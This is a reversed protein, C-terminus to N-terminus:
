NDAGLKVWLYGLKELVNVTLETGSIRATGGGSLVKCSRARCYPSFDVTFSSSIEIRNDNWQSTWERTRLLENHRDTQDMLDFSTVVPHNVLKHTCPGMDAGLASQAIVGLIALSLLALIVWKYSKGTM